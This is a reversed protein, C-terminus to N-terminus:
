SDRPNRGQLRATKQVIRAVGIVIAGTRTLVLSAEAVPTGNVNIQGQWSGAIEQANAIAFTLLISLLVLLTKNM